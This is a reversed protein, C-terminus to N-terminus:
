LIFASPSVALCPSVPVRLYPFLLERGRTAADALRRTECNKMEAKM